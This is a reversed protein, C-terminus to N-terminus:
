RSVRENRDDRGNVHAAGVDSSVMRERVRSAQWLHRREHAATLALEQGLSLKFWNSVPNSVKVRALDVGNADELVLKLEHQLLFFRDKIESVPLDPAPRYAEPVKFQIRPPADMLRIFLNGIAGHRFPGKGVWGRRRAKVIARRINHLSQHGTVVLHNFCEAVSWSEAKERWMLQATTLGELLIEAEREIAAFQRLYEQLEPVLAERRFHTKNSGARPVM